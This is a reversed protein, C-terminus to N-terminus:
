PRTPPFEAELRYEMLKILYVPCERAGYFWNQVTRYPIDFYRSFEAVTLGYATMLDKVNGYM